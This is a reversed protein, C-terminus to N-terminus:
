RLVGGEETVLLVDEQGDPACERCHEYVLTVSDPDCAPREVTRQEGCAPCEVTVWDDRM